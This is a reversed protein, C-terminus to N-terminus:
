PLTLLVKKNPKFLDVLVQHFTTCTSESLSTEFSLYTSNKEPTIHLTFYDNHFIGNVSYGKPEFSFADITFQKFFTILQLKENIIHVPVLGQQLMEASTGTLQHLMLIHQTKGVLNHERYQYLNGTYQKPLPQIKGELYTNLVDCDDKFHSKQKEPFFTQHRQFLLSSIQQKEIRNLFYLAANLLHTEGCTILLLKNKWVFLSSESLLYSRLKDNQCTSLISAGAQEVMNNWFLDPLLFLNSQTTIELRKEAGEYFM